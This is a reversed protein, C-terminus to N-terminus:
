FTFGLSEVASRFEKLLGPLRAELKAETFDKLEAEPWIACNRAAELNPEVAKCWATPTKVYHYDHTRLAELFEEAERLSKFPAKYWQGSENEKIFGTLSYNPSLDYTDRGDYPVEVVNINDYDGVSDLYEWFGREQEAFTIPFDVFAFRTDYKVPAGIEVGAHDRDRAHYLSNAVYHLPGDSSCLHWKILPVLEPFANAVEEHICGCSLTARDGRRGAIYETGTIAFTNHGNGCEDDYRVEAVIDVVEGALNKIGSATFTKVQKRTLVSEM